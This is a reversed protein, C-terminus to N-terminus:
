RPLPFYFPKGSRYRDYREGYATRLRREEHVSGLLLYVASVLIFVLFRVTMTPHFIWLLLPALNNPHRSVQFAGGSRITLDDELQPGQAPNQRMPEEGRIFQWAGGVGLMRWINIRVNADIVLICALLQMLRLVLSWPRGIHYLTRDPVGSFRRLIGAFTILALANFGLRYFGDFIRDGFRGRVWAKVEQSALASHLVAFAATWLTISPITRRLLERTPARGTM